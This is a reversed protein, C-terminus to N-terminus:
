CSIQGIMCKNYSKMYYAKNPFMEIKQGTLTEALQDDLHGTGPVGREMRDEMDTDTISAM